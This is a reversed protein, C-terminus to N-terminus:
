DSDILEISLTTDIRWSPKMGQSGKADSFSYQTDNSTVSNKM